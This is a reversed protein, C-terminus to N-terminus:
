KKIYRSGGYYLCNTGVTITTDTNYPLVVNITNGNLSYTLNDTSNGWNITGTGDGNFTFEATCYGTPDYWTGTLDIDPITQSRSEATQEAEAEAKDDEEAEVVGSDVLNQQQEEAADYFAYLPSLQEIPVKFYVIIHELYRYNGNDDIWCPVTVNEPETETKACRNGSLEVEAVYLELMSGDLVLSLKDPMKDTIDVHKLKAKSPDIKEDASKQALEMFTDDIVDRYSEISTKYLDSFVADTREAIEGSFNLEYRDKGHVTEHIGCKKEDNGTLDSTYYDYGDKTYEFFLQKTSGDSNYTIDLMIQQLEDSSYQKQVAATEDEVAAESVAEDVIEENVEDKEETTITEQEAAGCGTLIAVSLLFPLLKKM